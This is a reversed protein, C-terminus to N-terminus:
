DQRRRKVLNELTESHRNLRSATKIKRVVDRQHDSAMVILQSATELTHTGKEEEVKTYLQLGTQKKGLHAWTMHIGELHWGLAKRLGNTKMTLSLGVGLFDDEIVKFSLLVQPTNQPNSNDVKDEMMDLDSIPEDYAYLRKASDELTESHRNLGSATKFKIVNDRQHESTTVLLQSATELTLTGKEEKVKTYLQLRMRKKGLYAWTVHIEELHWRLAIDDPNSEHIFRRLLNELVKEIDVIKFHSTLLYRTYTDKSLFKFPHSPNHMADSPGHHSEEIGYMMKIIGDYTDGGLVGPCYHFGYTGMVPTGELFLWASNFIYGECTDRGLVGPLLSYTGRAPTGELFVLCYHIHAGRLHGRWSCWATIFIHGECTDGGLVGSLLSYTGRTPTGELFVPCYHIHAGRLHGRWSCGPM